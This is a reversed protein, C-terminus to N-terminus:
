NSAMWDVYAVWEVTKATDGTVQVEIEPGNAVFVCAFDSDTEQAARISTISGVLAADSYSQTGNATASGTSGDTIIENDAFTGVLDQLTLTGTTGGDADATIRGTAGSTAGTLVNGVTFQGTQTDYALSAGPRAASVTIHYFATDITNRGRGVVKAELYVGQGPDLALGWVKTAANGTTLGATAGIRNEYSRAWATSTGALTVGTERCDQAIVTNGPSTLTITNDEFDCRSFQVSELTGTLNIEGGIFRSHDIKLDIVSNLASLPTGDLVELDVTNEDFSCTSVHISRSGFVKLASGTNSYFDVNRVAANVIPLDVYKIELGAVSCFEVRGGIWLPFDLSAGNGTGATDLDGLWRAGLSCDSVVLDRFRAGQGGRYILGTEFRKLVVDDLIPRALALGYVGISLAVKTVGDITIRSLGSRAGALTIIKGGQTCQLTTADVGRGRLIVGLPISIPTVDYIGDPV